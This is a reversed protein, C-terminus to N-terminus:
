HAEIKKELKRLKQPWHNENIRASRFGFWFKAVKEKVTLKESYTHHYQTPKKPRQTGKCNMYVGTRKVITVLQVLKTTIEGLLILASETANDVCESSYCTAFVERPGVITRASNSCWLDTKLIRCLRESFARSRVDHKKVLVNQFRSLKLGKIFVDRIKIKKSKRLWIALNSKGILKLKVSSEVKQNSFSPM